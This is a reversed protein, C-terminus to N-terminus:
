GRVVGVGAIGAELGPMALEVGPTLIGAQM